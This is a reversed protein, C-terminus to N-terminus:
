KEIVGYYEEWIYEQHPWDKAKKRKNQYLEREIRYAGRGNNGKWTEWVVAISENPEAIKDFPVYKEYFYNHGYGKIKVKCNKRGISLIEGKMLNYGDLVYVIDGKKVNPPTVKVIPQKEEEFNMKVSDDFEIKKCDSLTISYNNNVHPFPKLSVKNCKRIRDDDNFIFYDGKKPEEELVRFPNENFKKWNKIKKMKLKYENKKNNM